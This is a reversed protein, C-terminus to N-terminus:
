TRSGVGRQSPNPVFIVELQNRYRNVEVTYHNLDGYFKPNRVHESKFTNVALAM